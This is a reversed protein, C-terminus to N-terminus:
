LDIGVGQIYNSGTDAVAEVKMKDLRAEGFQFGYFDRGNGQQHNERKRQNVQKAAGLKGVLQSRMWISPFCKSVNGKEAHSTGSRSQHYEVDHDFVGAWKKRTQDGVCERNYGDHPANQIPFYEKQPMVEANSRNNHPHPDPIPLLERM